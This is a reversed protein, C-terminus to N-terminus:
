TLSKALLRFKKQKFSGPSPVPFDNIKKVTYRSFHSYFPLYTVSTPPQTFWNTTRVSFLFPHGRSVTLFSLHIPVWLPCIFPTRVLSPCVGQSLPRGDSMSLIESWQDFNRFITIKRLFNRFPKFWFMSWFASMQDFGELPRLKKRFFYFSKFRSWSSKLCGLFSHLFKKPSPPFHILELPHRIDPPSGRPWPRDPPPPGNLVPYERRGRDGPPHGQWHWGLSWV